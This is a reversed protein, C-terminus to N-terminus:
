EKIEGFDINNMIYEKRHKVDEGMLDHLLSIADESYELKELRQNESSFMSERMSEASMEGLGKNRTITGRIKGRVKNMEEDTFYYTKKNGNTVIWLPAHLWCLRGEKVFQPAIHILNALILLAIHYGM